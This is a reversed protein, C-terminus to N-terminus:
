THSLTIWSYSRVDSEYHCWHESTGWSELSPTVDVWSWDTCGKRDALSRTARRLSGESWQLTDTYLILSIVSCAHVCTSNLKLLINPTILLLSIGNCWSTVWQPLSGPWHLRFQRKLNFLDAQRTSPMTANVQKASTILQLMSDSCYQDLFYRLFSQVNWVKYFVCVHM